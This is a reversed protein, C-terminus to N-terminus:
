SFKNIFTDKMEQLEDCTFTLSIDVKNEQSAAFSLFATCVLM